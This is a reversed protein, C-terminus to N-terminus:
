TIFVQITEENLHPFYEFSSLIWPLFSYSSIRYMGILFILLYQKIEHLNSRAVGTRHLIPSAVLFHPEM